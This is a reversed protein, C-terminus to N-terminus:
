KALKSVAEIIEHLRAGLEPSAAHMDILQLAEELLSKARLLFDRAADGGEPPPANPVSM